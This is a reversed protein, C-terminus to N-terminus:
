RRRGDAALLSALSGNGAYETVISTTLSPIHARLELVIPHKLATRHILEAYSLNKARNVAIPNSELDLAIRVVSPGGKEIADPVWAAGAAATASAAPRVAPAATKM